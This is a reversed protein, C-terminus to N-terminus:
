QSKDQSIRVSKAELMSCDLDHPSIVKVNVAYLGGPQLFAGTEM